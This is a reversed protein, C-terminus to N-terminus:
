DQIDLDRRIFCDESRKFTYIDVYWPKFNCILDTSDVWAGKSRVAYMLATRGHRDQINPNGKRNLITPISFAAGNICSWMLITQGNKDTVNLYEENVLIFNDIDSLSNFDKDEGSFIRKYKNRFEKAKM